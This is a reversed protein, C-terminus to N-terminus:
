MTVKGFATLWRLHINDRNGLEKEMKMMTNRLPPFSKLCNTLDKSNDCQEIDLPRCFTDWHMPVVRKEKKALDRWFLERDKTRMKRFLPVAVFVIDSDVLSDPLKKHDIYSSPFGGLVYISKKSKDHTIHVNYSQGEVYDRAKNKKKFQSKLNKPYRDGLPAFFVGALETDSHVVPELKITFEEAKIIIEKNPNGSVKYFIDDNYGMSNSINKTTPTAVLKAQSKSAVYPADLLHDFHSHLPIVWGVEDFNIGADKIKDDIISTSHAIKRLIYKPRSVFADIFIGPSDKNMVSKIYLTTNGLFTITFNPSETRSDKPVNTTYPLIDTNACGVLFTVILIVQAKIVTSYFRKGITPTQRYKNKKM